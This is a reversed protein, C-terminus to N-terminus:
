QNLALSLSGEVKKKGMERNREFKRGLGSAKKDRKKGDVCKRSIGFVYKMVTEDKKGEEKQSMEKEM